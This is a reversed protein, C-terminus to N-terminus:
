QIKREKILKTSTFIFFLKEEETNAENLTYFIELKVNFLRASSMKMVVLNLRYSHM